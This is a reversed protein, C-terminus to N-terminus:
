RRWRGEGSERGRRCREEAATGPDPGRDSPQRGRRTCLQRLPIVPPARHKHRNALHRQWVFRTVGDLKRGAMSDYHELCFRISAEMEDYSYGLDGEDTQGDELGASPTRNIHEEAIRGEAVFHELLQYVESKYLEGIPFLDALADGGKTDYGIFDESLNGTGMVRVRSRPFRTGLDHAVGYLVCMRARCRSNGLNVDTLPRDDAVGIQESIADAIATVPRVLHHIGLREALRASLSNFTQRDFANYPMSVGYVNDKGLAALCLIATLTSDAGGSLGVVAIDAQARIADRIHEVLRHCDPIM